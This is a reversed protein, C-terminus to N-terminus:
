VLFTQAIKCKIKNYERIGRRKFIVLFVYSRIFSKSYQEKSCINVHM